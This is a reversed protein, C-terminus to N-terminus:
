TGEKPPEPLPLWGDAAGEDKIFWGDDTSWGACTWQARTCTPQGGAHHLLFIERSCGTRPDIGRPAESMPRWQQAAELEALSQELWTVHEALAGRAGPTLAPWKEAHLGSGMGGGLRNGDAWERLQAVHDKLAETPTM